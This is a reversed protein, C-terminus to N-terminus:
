IPLSLHRTQHVSSHSWVRGSGGGTVTCCDGIVAVRKLGGKKLPLLAEHNQLLVTSQAAVERCLRNHADSTVIALPDGVPATDFLGTACCAFM